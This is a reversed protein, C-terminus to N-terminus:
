PVTWTPMRNGRVDRAHTTNLINIRRLKQDERRACLRAATLQDRLTQDDRAGLKKYEQFRVAARAIIYESLWDPLQTFTREVIRDVVINNTWTTTNNVTDYFYGNNLAFTQYEGAAPVASLWSTPYAHLGSTQTTAASVTTRNVTNGTNHIPDNGGVFTGTVSALYVYGGSEYKFYGTAGSGTQTVLDDYTFTGTGSSCTIAVTPLYITVGLEISPAYGERQCYRNDENLFVEAEAADTTGGTDLATVPPEGCGRLIRNVAELTTTM